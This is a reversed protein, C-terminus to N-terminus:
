RGVPILLRGFTGPEFAFCGGRSLEFGGLRELRSRRVLALRLRCRADCPEARGDRDARAAAPSGACVRDVIIREFQFVGVNIEVVFAFCDALDDIGLDGGLVLEGGDADDVVAREGLDLPRDEPRAAIHRVAIV